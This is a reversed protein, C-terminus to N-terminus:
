LDEKIFFMTRANALNVKTYITPINNINKFNYKQLLSKWDRHRYGHTELEITTEFDDILVTKTYNLLSDLLRNLDEDTLCYLVRDFIMLDFHNLNNKELFVLLNNLNFENDFFFKTNQKKSEKFKNNCIDIADKNVDIGYSIQNPNNQDLQYLLTGTACGFDLISLINNESVIDFYLKPVRKKNYSDIWSPQLYNRLKWFLSSSIIRRKLLIILNRIFNMGVRKKGRM